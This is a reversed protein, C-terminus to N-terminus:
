RDVDRALRAVCCVILAPCILGVVGYMTPAHALWMLDFRLAAHAEMPRPPTLNTPMGLIYQAVEPTQYNPRPGWFTEATNSGEYFYIGNGGSGGWTDFKELINGGDAHNWV